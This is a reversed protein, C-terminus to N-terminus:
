SCGKKVENKMLTLYNNDIINEVLQLRNAIDKDVDLKLKYNENNITNITSEYDQKLLSLENELADKNNQAKGIAEKLTVQKKELTRIKDEDNSLNNIENDLKKRMSDIISSLTGIPQNRTDIGYKSYNIYCQPSNSIKFLATNPLTSSKLLEIESTVPNISLYDGKENRFSVVDNIQLYPQQNNYPTTYPIIQFSMNIKNSFENKPYVNLYLSEKYSVPTLGYIKRNPSLYAIKTLADKITGLANENATLKVFKDKGYILFIPDNYYIINTIRTPHKDKPLIGFFPDGKLLEKKLNEKETDSLKDPDSTVDEFNEKRSQHVFYTMVITLILVISLLYLTSKSIAM